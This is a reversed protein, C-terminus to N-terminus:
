HKCISNNIVDHWIILENEDKFDKQILNQVIKRPNKANINLSLGSISYVKERIATQNELNITEIAHHLSSAALIRVM